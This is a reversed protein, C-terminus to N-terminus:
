REDKKGQISPFPIDIGFKDAVLKIFFEILDRMENTNLKASSHKQTYAKQIPRWLLEKVTTPAWNM